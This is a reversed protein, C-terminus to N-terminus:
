QGTAGNLRDYLLGLAASDLDGMGENCLAQMLQHALNTAPQVTRSDRGVSCAIGLDKNMLTARFGGELAGDLYRKAHAELVGSRAAGSSLVERMRHPDVGAARVLAIAECVGMLNIAVMLQNAAKVAQGSGLPGMHHTHRGMADLIPRARAIAAESGGAMITLTGDAAGKAGGSVPADIMEGGVERLLAALDRADAPAITSCEVLLGDEWPASAIGDWGDIVQRLADSDPLCSVIITCRAALDRPTDCLTVGEAAAEAAKDANRVVAALDFGAKMLNRAMGSGMVGLGIFGITESM